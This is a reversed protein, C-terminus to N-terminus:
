RGAARRYGGARLNGAPSSGRRAAAPHAQPMDVEAEQVLRRPSVVKAALEAVKEFVEPCRFQGPDIGRETRQIAGRGRTSAM